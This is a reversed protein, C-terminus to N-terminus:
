NNFDIKGNNGWFWELHEPPYKVWYPKNEDYESVSFYFSAGGFWSGLGILLGKDKEFSKMYRTDIYLKDGYEKAYNWQEETEITGSPINEVFGM